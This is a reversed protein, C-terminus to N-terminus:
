LSANAPADPADSLWESINSFSELPLVRYRLQGNNGMAWTYWMVVENWAAQEWQWPAAYIVQNVVARMFELTKPTPELLWVGASVHTSPLCRKNTHASLLSARPCIPVAPDGGDGM